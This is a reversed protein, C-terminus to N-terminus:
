LWRPIFVIIATASYDSLDESDQIYHWKLKNM